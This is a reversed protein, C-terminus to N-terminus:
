TIRHDLAVTQGHPYPIRQIAHKKTAFIHNSSIALTYKHVSIETEPSSEPLGCPVDGSATIIKRNMVFVAASVLPFLEPRVNAM